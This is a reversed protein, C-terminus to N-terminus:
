VVQSIALQSAEEDLAACWLTQFVRLHSQVQGGDDVIDDSLDTERYVIADGNGPLHMVEFTGLTTLRTDVTFPLVRVALRGDASLQQLEALQEGLVKPRGLTRRLVSEDLLVELRPAPQRALLEFRRRARVELRVEVAEACLLERYNGLVARAYSEVQVRGPVVTPAYYRAVPADTEYQILERMGPTTHERVRPEEWWVKRRRSVQVSRVLSEIRQPEDIGFFTLLARLDNVHLTVVGAEIRMVKSLSWEMAEAVQGQTLGTAERAARVELRVRRRAGAPSEGRSMFIRM